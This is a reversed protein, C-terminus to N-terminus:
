RNVQRQSYNSHHPLDCPINGRSVPTEEAVRLVYCYQPQPLEECVESFNSVPFRTSQKGPTTSAYAAVRYQYNKM